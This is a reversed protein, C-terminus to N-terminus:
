PLLIDNLGGIKKDLHCMRPLALVQIAGGAKGDQLHADYKPLGPVGAKAGIVEFKGPYVAKQVVPLSVATQKWGDQRVQLPRNGQM